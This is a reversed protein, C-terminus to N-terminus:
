PRAAAQEDMLKKMQQVNENLQGIDVLADEYKRRWMEEEQSETPLSPLQGTQLKLKQNERMLQGNASRLKVVIELLRQIRDELGAWASAGSSLNDASAPQNNDFPL